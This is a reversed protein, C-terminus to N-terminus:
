ITRTPGCRTRDREVLLSSRAGALGRAKHRAPRFKNTRKWAVRHGVLASLNAVVVVHALAATALWADLTEGVGAGLRVRNVLWRLLHTSGVLVTVALWLPFPLPVVEGHVAM